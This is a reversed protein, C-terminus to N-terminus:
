VNYYPTLCISHLASLKLKMYFFVPNSYVWMPHASSLISASCTLDKSDPFGLYQETSDPDGNDAISVYQAEFAERFKSLHYM